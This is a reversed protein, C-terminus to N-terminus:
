KVREAAKGARTTSVDEPVQRRDAGLGIKLAEKLLRQPHHARSRQRAVASVFANLRRASGAGGLAVRRNRLRADIQRVVALMVNQSDIWEEGADDREYGLSRFAYSGTVNLGGKLRESLSQVEIGVGVGKDTCGGM